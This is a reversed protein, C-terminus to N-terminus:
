LGMSPESRRKLQFMRTLPAMAMCKETLAGNSIMIRSSNMRSGFGRIHEWMLRVDECGTRAKINDKIAELMRVYAEGGMISYGHESSLIKVTHEPRIMTMDVSSLAEDSSKEILSLDDGHNYIRDTIDPFLDSVSVSVMDMINVARERTKPGYVSEMLEPPNVAPNYM